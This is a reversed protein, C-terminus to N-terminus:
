ALVWHMRKLTAMIPYAENELTSCRLELNRFHGPLSVLLEHHQEKFPLSPDPVPIETVVVAWLFGPTDTFVCLQKSVDVHVLNVPNELALKCKHFAM